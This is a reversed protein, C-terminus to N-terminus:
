EIPMPPASVASIATVTESTARGDSSATSPRRTFARAGCRQCRAARRVALWSRSPGQYRSACATIRRGATTATVLAVNRITSPRGASPMFNVSMSM